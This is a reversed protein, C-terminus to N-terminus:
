DNGKRLGFREVLSYFDSKYVISINTGPYLKKLLEVKKKKAATYRQDMTTLEIYNNFRPLYFDPSFAQIVHGEADWKIPFTRPEYEWEIGHMDLIRAFEEESPHKFVVPKDTTQETTQDTERIMQRSSAFHALLDAGEDVSLHDTNLTLHYLTPDAWDREYVTAVYRKHKRDTLEMFREADAKGLSHLRMIRATRVEHSAIIKAHLAQPHDAFIIQAGMGFIIAPQQTTYDRLKNELFQAFTIGQGCETQYFAPSERLMHLEHKSAVEPFWQAMAMERTLVPIDLNRALLDTIEQGLSGTQRSITILM